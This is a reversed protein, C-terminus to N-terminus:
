STEGPMEDSANGVIAFPSLPSIVLYFQKKSGSRIHAPNGGDHYDFHQQNRCVARQRRIRRWSWRSRTADCLTPYCDAEFGTVLVVDKLGCWDIRYLMHELIPAGEIPILCKPIHDTVPRLRQGRGAALIIAKM